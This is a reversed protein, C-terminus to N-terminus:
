VPMTLTIASAQRTTLPRLISRCLRWFEIFTLQFSVVDIIVDGVIGSGYRVIAADLASSRTPPHDARAQELVINRLVLNSYVHEINKSLLLQFFQLTAM